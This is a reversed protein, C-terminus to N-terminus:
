RYGRMGKLPLARARNSNRKRLYSQQGACVWQDNNCASTGCKCCCVFYAVTLHRNGWSLQRRRTFYAATPLHFVQPTFNRRVAFHCLQKQTPQFRGQITKNGYPRIEYGGAILCAANSKRGRAGEVVEHDGERGSPPLLDNDEDVAERDGKGAPSPMYYYDGKSGVTVSSKCFCFVVRLVGSKLGAKM